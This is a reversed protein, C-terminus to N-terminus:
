SKKEEVPKEDTPVDPTMCKITYHIFENVSKGNAGGAEDIYRAATRDDIVQGASESAAQVMTIIHKFSFVEGNYLSLLKSIPIDGNLECYRHMAWTGWELKVVGASINLEYPTM